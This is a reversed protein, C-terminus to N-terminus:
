LFFAMKPTLGLKAHKKIVKELHMEESLYTQIKSVLMFNQTKKSWHNGKESFFIKKGKSCSSSINPANGLLNHPAFFFKEINSWSERGMSVVIEFHKLKSNFNKEIDVGGLTCYFFSSREGGGNIAHQGSNPQLKIFSVLAGFLGEV